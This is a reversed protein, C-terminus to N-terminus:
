TAAAADQPEGLAALLPGLWARYPAARGIADRYLPARVQVASATRVPRATEHFALCADHWALGCHALLRRAQGELDGVVDEYRVELLVDAPLVARWHAMVADYGRWYRGLEDLAYAFPQSGSFLKFFCSLCTDVPDRGVAIIRANPLALRILGAHVFNIPLKDTIRAADRAVVDLDARYAAALAALGADDAAPDVTGRAALAELAAPFCGLEGAGFVAPHSALIQEVLTTGSRPMGVIFVPRADPDGRGGNARLFAATFRERVRAFGALTAAEDYDLLGRKLANGHTYAAFADAPRGLDDYAKALAFALDIREATPRAEATAALRELAPLLPDDARWRRSEGLLYYFRPTAPERAVARAFADRAADLRGLAKLANGANALAGAHDPVRQLVAEYCALAEAERGLTALATGLNNHTDLADPARALAARYSAVAEAPRGLAALAVGLNGLADVYDPELALAARYCDAARELAGSAQLATGLGNHAAALDPKLAIAREFCAVAEPTRGLAGLTVGLNCHLEALEPNRSLGLTLAECAAAMRGLRMLAVGIWCPLQASAPELEFATEFCALAADHRGLDALIVGLDQQAAASVPNHHLARSILRVAQTRHGRRARIVGLQHLATVDNPRMRLVARYLREADDLAGQRQSAVAAALAEAHSPRAGVTAGATV